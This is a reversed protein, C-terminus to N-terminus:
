KLKLKLKIELANNAEVKWLKQGCREVSHRHHQQLYPCGLRLLLTHCRCLLQFHFLAFFIIEFIFKILSPYSNFASVGDNTPIFHKFHKLVLHRSM